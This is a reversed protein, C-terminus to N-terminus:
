NAGVVYTEDVDVTTGASLLFMLAANQMTAKVPASAPSPNIFDGHAGETFRVFGRVGEANSADGILTTLGMAAALPTTGTLPHGVAAGSNPVTQDNAIQFMLTPKAKAAALAAHNIPDGADGVAQAVYVFQEYLASGPAIGAAALGANIPGGINPSAKLFGAFGGGPYVLVAADFVDDYALATSGAIGGLSEGIFYIKNADFDAGASADIDAFELIKALFLVDAASQRFNDRTTVLSAVNFYHVGSTDPTGDPVTNTVTSGTQTYYDVGFTRERLAGNADSTSYGTFLPSSASLGHLPQDIAVVVFGAASFMDAIALMDTRNRTVGHQYVVVPWGNAPKTAPVVGVGPVVLFNPVTMMVPISEDGTKVPLKNFYTLMGAQQGLWHRLLPATFAVAADAEDVDGDGDFDRPDNSYLYYPLKLSGTYVSGAGPSIPGILDDTDMGTDTVNFIARPGFPNAPSGLTAAITGDGVLKVTEMVEATAVTTFQMTLVIDDRNIQSFASVADEMYNVLQRVPELGGTAGSPDLPNRTKVVAYQGDPVLANGNSDAIGNTLAVVYTGQPALPRLPVIGVSLNGTLMQAVYDVGPQLERIVSVVPGTPPITDAVGDGTADVVLPRLASVEYVRLSNGMQVTAPNITVGAGTSFNISFPNLTSWGDISSLARFVPATPSAPNFPPNLTLDTTGSFLLDNPLPINGTGPSFTPRSLAVSGGGGSGATGDPIKPEAPGDGGGCGALGLSSVLALGLLHKKM